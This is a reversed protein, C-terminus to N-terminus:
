SVSLFIPYFRLYLLQSFFLKKIPLMAPVVAAAIVYLERAM